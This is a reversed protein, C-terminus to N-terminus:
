STEHGKRIVNPTAGSDERIHSLWTKRTPRTTAEVTLQFIRSDDTQASWKCRRRADTSGHSCFCPSKSLKPQQWHVTQQELLLMAPSTCLLAHTPMLMTTCLFLQFLFCNRCVRPCMKVSGWFQGDLIGPNVTFTLLREMILFYVQWKLPVMRFCSMFCKFLNSFICLSTLM